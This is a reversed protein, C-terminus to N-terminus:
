TGRRPTCPPHRQNACLCKTALLVGWLAVRRPSFGSKCVTLSSFGGQKSDGGRALRARHGGCPQPPFAFHWCNQSEKWGWLAQSPVASIKLPNIPKWCSEGCDSEASPGGRGWRMMECVRLFTRPFTWGPLWPGACGLAAARPILTLPFPPAPPPRPMERPVSEAGGVGLWAESLGTRLAPGLGRALGAGWGGMEAEPESGVECVLPGKLSASAETLWPGLGEQQQGSIM